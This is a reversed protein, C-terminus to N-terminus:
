AGPIDSGWISDKYGKPFTYFTGDPLEYSWDWMDSVGQAEKWFTTARLPGFVKDHRKIHEPILYIRRIPAQVKLSYKVDTKALGICWIRATGTAGPVINNFGKNGLPGVLYYTNTDLKKCGKWRVEVALTNSTKGKINTWTYDIIRYNVLHGNWTIQYFPDHLNFEEVWHPALENINFAEFYFTANPDNLDNAYDSQKISLNALIEEGFLKFVLSGSGTAKETHVANWYAAAWTIENFKDRGSNDVIKLIEERLAKHKDSVIKIYDTKLGEKKAENDLAIAESMETGYIKNHKKAYELQFETYGTSNEDKIESFLVNKFAYLTQDYKLNASVWYSNVLKVLRSITDNDDDNVKCTRTLFCEKTKLDGLWPAFKKGQAQNALYKQVDRIGELNNPYDSKLSDVAIQIEQGLFKIIKQGKKEYIPKKSGDPLTTYGVIKYKPEGSADVTMTTIPIIDNYIGASVVQAQLSAVIGTIDTMSGIAIEKLSGKLAVKPLKETEPAAAFGRIEEAMNPLKEVEILQVFDGDFDRGLTLFQEKGSAIIGKRDKFRGRDPQNTWIQIDGWHRTPNCFLIYDGAKLDPACFYLKGAKFDPTFTEDPMCMLSKFRIGATTTLKKWIRQVREKIKMVIYRHLLLRGKIDVEIIQTVIDDYDDISGIADNLNDNNDDLPNEKQEIRIYDALKKIDSMIAALEQCKTKLASIVGDKELSEWSFWQFFQWGPKASQLYANHIPLKGVSRSFDYANILSVIFNSSRGYGEWCSLPESEDIHVLTELWNTGGQKQIEEVIKPYKQLKASLIEFMIILNEDISSKKNANYASNADTYTKGKYEIPYDNVIKKAIKALNTKNSLVALLPNNALHHINNDNNQEAVMITKTQKVRDINAKIRTSKGDWIALGYDAHSCMLKDIDEYNGEIFASYYNGLSESYTTRFEIVFEYNKSKLYEQILKDTGQNNGIFVRLNKAIINDLTSKIEQSLEHHSFVGSIIVTKPKTIQRLSFLYTTSNPQHGFFNTRHDFGFFMVDGSDLNTETVNANGTKGGWVFTLINTSKEQYVYINIIPMLLDNDEKYEQLIFLDNSSLKQILCIEVTYFSPLINVNKLKQILTQLSPILNPYGNKGCYTIHDVFPATPLILNELEAILTQQHTPNLEDSAIKFFM